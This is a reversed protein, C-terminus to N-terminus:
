SELADSFPLEDTFCTDLLDGSRISRGFQYQAYQRLLREINLWITEPIQTSSQTEQVTPPVVPLPQLEPQALQQLLSLELANVQSFSQPRWSSDPNAASQRQGNKDALPHFQPRSAAANYATDATESATPTPVAKRVPFRLRATRPWRSGPGGAALKQLAQPAIAGGSAASFGAVWGPQEFNPVIPVRSVSCDQVQPALGALALLHFVGHVLHAVVAFAQPDDRDVVPLRELRRLHETLVEFLEAQPQDSLAQFLVLEALYQSAALKVLQGSLGPFSEVTEAQAIKDLSRGRAILLRNVVFLEGRGGFKSPQKRAGKAVARILGSERTLITLLRDAEGMPMGKLNIGTVKYTRGM